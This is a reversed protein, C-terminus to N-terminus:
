FGERRVPEQKFYMNLRPDGPAARSFNPAPLNLQPQSGRIPWTMPNGFRGQTPGTPPMAPSTNRNAGFLGKAQMLQILSALNNM